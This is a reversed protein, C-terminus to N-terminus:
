NFSLFFLIVFMLLSVDRVMKLPRLELATKSLHSLLMPQVYLQKKCKEQSEMMSQEQGDSIHLVCFWLMSMQGSISAMVHEARWGHCLDKRPAMRGHVSM